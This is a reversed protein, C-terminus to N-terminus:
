KNGEQLPVTKANIGSIQSCQVCLLSKTENDAMYLVPENTMIRNISEEVDKFEDFTNFELNHGDLLHVIVITLEEKM